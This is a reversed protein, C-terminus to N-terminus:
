KRWTTAAARALDGTYSAYAEPSEWVRAQLHDLGASQLAPAIREVLYEAVVEASPNPTALDAIQNLDRGDLEAIVSSLAEQLRTIDFLTGDSQLSTGSVSVEVRYTHAHTRSAPGFDGVLHHRAGFGAVIGVEFSM